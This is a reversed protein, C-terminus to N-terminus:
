TEIDLFPIKWHLGPKFNTQVIEGLRFLVAREWEKVTFLSLSGLVLIGAVIILTVMQKQGM